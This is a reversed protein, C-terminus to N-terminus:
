SGSNARLPAQKQVFHLPISISLSSVWCRGQKWLVPRKWRSRRRRTRRRGQRILSEPRNRNLILESIISRISHYSEKSPRDARRLAVVRGACFLVFVSYVCINMGRTPNSVENGINEPSSMEHRLSRPWQSRGLRKRSCFIGIQLGM